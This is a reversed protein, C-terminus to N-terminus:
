ILCLFPLVNIPPEIVIPIPPINKNINLLTNLSQSVSSIEITIYRIKVVYPPNADTVINKAIISNITPINSVFDASVFDYNKNKYQM